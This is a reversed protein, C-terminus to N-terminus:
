FILTSRLRREFSAVPCDPLRAKGPSAKWSRWYERFSTYARKGLLGDRQKFREVLSVKGTERPIGCTITDEASDFGIEHTGPHAGARNSSLSLERWIRSGSNRGCIEEANGFACREEGLSPDGLGM